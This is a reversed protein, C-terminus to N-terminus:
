LCFGVAVTLSLMASYLCLSELSNSTPILYATVMYDFKKTATSTRLRKLAREVTCGFRANGEVM